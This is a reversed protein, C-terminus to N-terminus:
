VCAREMHVGFIRVLVCLYLSIMLAGMRFYRASSLSIVGYVDHIVGYLEVQVIGVEFPFFVFFVRWFFDLYM